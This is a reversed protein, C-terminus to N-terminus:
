GKHKTVPEISLSGTIDWAQYNNQYKSSLHNDILKSAIRRKALVVSGFCYNIAESTSRTQGEQIKTRNM